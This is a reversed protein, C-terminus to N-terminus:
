KHTLAQVGSKAEPVPDPRQDRGLPDRIGHFPQPKTGLHIILSTKQPSTEDRLVQAYPRIRGFGYRPRANLLIRGLGTTWLNASTRPAFSPISHFTREM